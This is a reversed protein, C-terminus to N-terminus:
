MKSLNSCTPTEIRNDPDIPLYVIFRSGEGPESFVEVNGKHAHVVAKVMSLGLGLGRQSRSKDGRYLRDWILPIEEHPVGVGTDHIIVDIRKTRRYAEIDVRGGPPTYKVANDLLNAFVQRMRNRDVILTLPRLCALNISINKEEAIIEYLAIVDELISAIDTEEIDLKMVGTEAESIDMLTNLMAGMRESEEACDMLAERLTASDEQDSQLTMEIIGRLRTMPTRLDHAVNDLCAKMGCILMEIREIMKNFLVVLEDLEDRAGSGLVRAGMEGREISQVTHILNRIPRLTRSAFIAGGAFGFVVIPILIGLFIVRFDELLEESKEMNRGVQLLLHDPLLTSAMEWVEEKDDSEQLRISFRNGETGKAKLFDTGVNMWHDPLSLFLTEQGRTALRIFISDDGHAEKELNVQRRIAEIGGSAYFSVFEALEEQVTESDRERVSSYLFFYLIGFIILSSAM